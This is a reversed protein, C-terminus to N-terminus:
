HSCEAEDVADAGLHALDVEDPAMSEELSPMEDSFLVRDMVVKNVANLKWYIPVLWRKLADAEDSAKECTMTFHQTALAKSLYHQLADLRTEFIIECDYCFDIREKLDLGHDQRLHALFKFFDGFTGACFETNEQSKERWLCMLYDYAESPKDEVQMPAFLPFNSTAAMIISVTSIKLSVLKQRLYGRLAQAIKAGAM